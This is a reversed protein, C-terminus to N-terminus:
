IPNSIHKTDNTQMYKKYILQIYRVVCQLFIVHSDHSVLSGLVEYSADGGSSICTINRLQLAAVHEGKSMQISGRRVIEMGLDSLRAWREYFFWYLSAEAYPLGTKM